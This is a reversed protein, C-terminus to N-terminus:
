LANLLRTTPLLLLDGPIGIELLESSGAIV